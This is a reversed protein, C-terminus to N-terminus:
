EVEALEQAQGLEIEGSLLKPLLTDRLAALDINQQKNNAVTRFFSAFVEELKRCLEENPVVIMLREFDRPYIHPQAAGTQMDFIKKQNYRLAVYQLFFLPTTSQSIYSCDSAWINEFYLNVYGANAGSASITIAPGDVNHANHFYAPKLGGAVVPVDGDVITKKTINKGKTIKVWESFPKVEWGDPILGLESEVLKEPFLSATAADMGEPQEGNMKAKVPDFDVFWSKFIAQAMQELTQNIKINLTIKDDLTRLQTSIRKQIEVTPYRVPVRALTKQNLSLMTTGESNQLLWARTASSRMLYSFFLSDYKNSLRLRIGDSGLFWGEQEFSIVANRDVAGKRGFVIDGQQLLFKPLRQTTAECVRPTDEVIQLFGERIERVSILPVGDESYESAKLATGFPGTQLHAEDRSILDGLTEDTWDFSM